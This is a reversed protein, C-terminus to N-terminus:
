QYIRKLLCQRAVNWQHSKMIKPKLDNSETTLIFFVGWSQLDTVAYPTM